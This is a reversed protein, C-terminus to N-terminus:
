PQETSFLKIKTTYMTEVLLWLYVAGTLIVLRLFEMYRVEVFTATLETTFGDDLARKSSETTYNSLFMIFLTAFFSLVSPGILRRITSSEVFYQAILPAPLSAVRPIGNADSTKATHVLGTIIARLINVFLIALFTTALNMWYWADLPVTFVANLHLLALVAQTLFSLALVVEAYKRVQYFHEVVPPTAKNM